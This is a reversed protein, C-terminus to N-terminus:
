SSKKPKVRRLKHIESDVEGGVVLFFSCIYFWFMLAILAGLSGYFKQFNSFSNVYDRFALSGFIWGLSAIVGGPSILRWKLRRAPLTHYIIQVSLNMLVFIIGWRISSYFARLYGQKALLDLLWEGFFVLVGSIIVFFSIGITVLISTFRTRVLSRHDEIQYAQNLLSIMGNFGISAFWLTTVLGFTLVRRDQSELLTSLIEKVLLYANTPLFRELEFWLLDQLEPGIPIFGVLATLFILFPFFALLFYYSLQAAMGWCNDSNIEKWLGIWFRPYLLYKFAILDLSM